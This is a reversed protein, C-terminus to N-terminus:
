TVSCYRPWPTSTSSPPSPPLPQAGGPHRGAGAPRDFRVDDDGPEPELGLGVQRLRGPELDVVADDDVFEPAGRSVFVDKGGAVDCAEGDGRESTAEPDLM